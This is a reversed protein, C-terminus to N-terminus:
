LDEIPAGSFISNRGERIWLEDLRVLAPKGVQPIVVSDDAEQDFVLGVRNRQVDEPPVFDHVQVHPIRVQGDGM